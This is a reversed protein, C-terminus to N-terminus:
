ALDGTQATEDFVLHYVRGQFRPMLLAWEARVAQRVPSAVAAIGIKTAYMPEHTRLRVLSMRCLM